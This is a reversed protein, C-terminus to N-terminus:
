VMTDDGAVDAGAVLNRAAHDALHRQCLRAGAGGGRFLIPQSGPFTSVEASIIPVCVFHQSLPPIYTAVTRRLTSVQLVQHDDRCM